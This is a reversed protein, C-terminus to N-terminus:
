ILFLYGFWSVGGGACAAGRGGAGAGAGAAAVVSGVGFRGRWCAASATGVGAVAAAAFAFVFHCLGDACGDGGTGDLREADTFLGTLPGTLLPLADEGRSHRRATRIPQNILIRPLM